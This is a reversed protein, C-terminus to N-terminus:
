KTSPLRRSKDNSIPMGNGCVRWVASEKKKVTGSETERRLQRKEKNPHHHHNPSTCYTGGTINVYITNRTTKGTQENDEM